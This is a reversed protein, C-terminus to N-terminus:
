SCAVRMRMRDIACELVKGIGLSVSTSGVPTWEFDVSAMNHSAVPETFTSLGATYMVEYAMIINRYCKLKQEGSPFLKLKQRSQCHRYIYM